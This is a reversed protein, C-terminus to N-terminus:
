ATAELQSLETLPLLARTCNPHQVLPIGGARAIPIRRGNAAACPGDFDGDRIMVGVVVNSERYHFLTARNASTALETRQIVEARARSFAFDGRLQRGIEAPTLGAARGEQLVKAVAQRTTENIGTIQSGAEALFRLIQADEIGWRVGLAAQTPGHLETLVSRYWPELVQRLRTEEDSPMLSLITATADIRAGVRVAQAVLFGAVAELMAPTLRERLAAITDLLDDTADKTELVKLEPREHSAAAALQPRDTALQVVVNAPRLYVEDAPTVPLGVARRADAVKVWGGRVATDMRQYLSDQDEQLVRVQSNDFAVRWGRAQRGDVFDPLLQTNLEALLLRQLPIIGSEYAAERAEHFNAYTSRSLGAGLGAVIAPVGLVASIREEPVQRMDRLNMQDPSFSLVSIDLAGQSVLPEGRRDGGFKQAFNAKLSLAQDETMQAEGDKPSIVVGPVGLNTLLAASFRAAEDDTYVEGLVTKLPSRGKRTNQDDFGWRFHVLEDPEYRVIRSGDPKYEYHSIFVSGDDPWRPEVLRQPLWWLEVPKNMGSRRKLLYANGDTVFDGLLASWLQPGSYFPNPREWLAALPHEPRTQWDGQRDRQQVILPAEPFTRCIWQLCSQVASSGAGNGVRAVDVASRQLPWSWSWQPSSPFRLDTLAKFAARLRTWITM